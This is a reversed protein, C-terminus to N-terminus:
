PNMVGAIFDEVIANLDDANDDSIGLYERAPIASGVPEGGHQHIAAYILGSGVEVQNGQVQYAISDILHGQYDLLGGSSKEAKRAKWKDTLPEWAKGDPDTKESSLRRRTQSELEAGLGELLERKNLDSLKEIQERAQDIASLDYQMATGSM